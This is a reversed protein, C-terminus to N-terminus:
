KVAGPNYSFGHDNANRQASGSGGTRTTGQTWIEPGRSKGFVTVVKGDKNLVVTARKGQYKITGNLNEIIKKPNRVADLMDKINVGRGGNRGIAQNLGHKTFGTIEGAIPKPADTKCLGLPDIYKLPNVVYGYPNVGGALGIPDPSVYQGTESDYYRYRNYFLGSEDDEYQGPFRLHCSPAGEQSRGEEKGWLQPKGKWVLTGEETLLEQIRGVTDTVAYHLLGKEYRALPTFSGPEYIWRIANEDEPKGDAGVPIEEALQDGNWHFNIGPKDRNTCRKSIRRGFPDYKYEWREGEPTELGTLQNKADWRYRWQLPRYGGKDVLKEVLRDNADYKWTINHANVVRVFKGEEPMGTDPNIRDTTHRWVQHERSIVRGHQQQQHSESDLVANVWTQRRTLNLNKDYSFREECMPTTTSGTWTAHSIQDNATLTNFMTGRLSDSIMTLNYAHDYLWQRQLSKHRTDPEARHDGAKQQTLMGAPTYGLQQYFGAESRRSTEQGCLDHELTLPAHDNLQWAKLEGTLGRTFRETLGGTTRQRVFDRQEDYGYETRRGNITEAVIQNADNYEFTVTAADNKAEVLRCETDYRFTTTSLTRNSEGHTVEEDTLQDTVNYRRNLHTGDPFTTRICRGAADYEYRLTRGTFDTEAVLQGAKDYKLCYREGAANTIETLRTLKDYRCTLREGDPRVLATLLDFAGYEYRTTKGEGDTFSESLKESNQRMLERVGDPRNIEEVSGQPGAHTKSHRFQTTFGLPDKVSLLRGLFDSETHTVGGDPAVTDLVQHLADHRWRWTAGGPLVRALLDGQDNHSFQQKRGQPDALTVVSGNDDYDWQWTKDGPAILRTLQGYENYEYWLSYGGPLAVQRIDGNRNYDYKTTRGLADTRSQLLTNEWVTKEERGLPDISRTVLGDENYWFRTEGGEADIYTSCHEEDDYVFRDDYYGETSLTSIARGQADYGIDVSTKDTDRWLTMFGEPSYEHWLHTFQFTDCESLFGLEDYHCTVLRQRQPNVLDISMLQQQQWDLTLTYGDSHHIDTLLGDTRIFDIQNGYRDQWASLLYSGSGAPTFQQTQQSRRDFLSLGDSLNGSLRYHAQRGNVADRFIGDQPIPYYLVVGEADTFHLNNGHVTLSCSWEDTWKPGFIGGGKAQSRYFRSLTLPLSGPLSLVTPHQIFDGSGADVPEGPKTCLGSDVGKGEGERAKVKGRINAGDMEAIGATRLTYEMGVSSIAMMIARNEPSDMVNFTERAEGGIQEVMNRAAEPTTNYYSSAMLNAGIQSSNMVGDPTHDTNFDVIADKIAKATDATAQAEQRQFDAEFENSNLLKDMFSQEEATEPVVAPDAKSAPVSAAPPQGLIIGTTNRANMWFKDFHRLVPKGSVFFTTSFELPECIDGVTGSKVGKAVGPADGKTKPIFSQNLILVPCDNALVTPVTLVSNVMDATVPYPVPPTAPGMPTKCVDPTTSVVTWLIDQRAIYNLAM